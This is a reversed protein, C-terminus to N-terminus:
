TSSTKRRRTLRALRQECRAVDDRMTEVDLAFAELEAATAVAATEATLYEAANLELARLSQTGLAAARRASSGLAAAPLNGIWGALVDEFEPKALKLMRSFGDAVNLNGRFEVRGARLDAISDARALELLEFPGAKIYVDAEDRSGLEVEVEGEFAALAVCLSTGEVEVAMRKGALRALEQTAATSGRIWRNLTIEILGGLM